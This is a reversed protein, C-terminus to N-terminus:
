SRPQSTLTIIAQGIVNVILTILLLVVAAYMLAQTEIKGAEPFNLALLAALSNAPSFLSLSIQNSNGVLMALAMTEGLARGLGLVLAGFIGHSATPLMVKIIAQWRTTGMGYAAEKVRYPIALLSDQSVAAVTPLIMIALVLAAPLMGPGSLSTAFFPIWSFKAYLWECYPRILPILVFIGWLGYVVSPIAALLEIINKFIIQLSPPLFDQTLFIAIVVGFFGGVLLALFSSYLTGWIQPLIGFQSRNADWSSSTLFKLGSEAMAPVAKRGIELLIVFLLLVIVVTCVRTLTKFCTDWWIESRTPPSSISDDDVIVRVFHRQAM